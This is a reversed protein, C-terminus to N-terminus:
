MDSWTAPFLDGACCIWQARRCETTLLSLAAYNGLRGPSLEPLGHRAASVLRKDSPQSLGGEVPLSGGVHGALVRVVFVSLDISHFQTLELGKSYVYKGKSLLDM